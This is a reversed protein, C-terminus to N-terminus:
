IMVTPPPDSHRRQLYRMVLRCFAQWRASLAAVFLQHGEAILRAEHWLEQRYM